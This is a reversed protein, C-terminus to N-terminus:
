AALPPSLHDAFSRRQGEIPPKCFEVIQLFILVGIM